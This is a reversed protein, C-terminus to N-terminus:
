SRVEGTNKTINVKSGTLLMNCFSKRETLNGVKQVKNMAGYQLLFIENKKLIPVDEAESVNHVIKFVLFQVYHLFRSHNVMTM